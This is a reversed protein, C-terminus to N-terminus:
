FFQFVGISLLQAQSWPLTLPLAADIRIGSRVLRPILFRVGAGVSAMVAPANPEPRSVAVDVFATPIAAFFMSDFAIWRLEVNALAFATTRAFNDAYGRVLDLGGLHFRQHPQADTMAGAQGRIALHLADGILLFGLYEATTTAFVPQTAHSSLALGPKVELQWGSDRLRVPSVRGFRVSGTVFVSRSASPLQPTVDTLPAIFRDDVAQLQVGFRLRDHVERLFEVSAAARVLGFATRPRVLREYTFTLQQRQDLFRPDRAWLQFGDYPGFREWLGGLEIFRGFTNIDYSGLRIWGSGGGVGYRFLLNVTWREELDLVAVARGDDRAEIWADIRSFVGVLWLRELGLKWVEASIAGGPKWPLERLVVYEHTRWLGRVEVADVKSVSEVPVRRAEVVGAAVVEDARARGGAVCALAVLVGCFRRTTFM